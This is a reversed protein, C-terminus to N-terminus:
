FGYDSCDDDCGAFDPCWSAIMREWGHCHDHHEHCYDDHCRHNYDHCDHHHCDGSPQSPGRPPNGGHTVTFGSGSPGRPPNGGFTVPFHPPTRTGGFYGPDISGKGGLGNFVTQGKIPNAKPLTQKQVAKIANTPGSKSKPTSAEAVAQLSVVSFVVAVALSFSRNM